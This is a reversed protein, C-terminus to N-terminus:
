QSVQRAQLLRKLVQCDDEARQKEELALNREVLAGALLEQTRIHKQREEDRERTLDDVAHLVDMKMEAVHASLSEFQLEVFRRATM